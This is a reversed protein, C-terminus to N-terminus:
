LGALHALLLMPEVVQLAPLPPPGDGRLQPTLATHPMTPELSM